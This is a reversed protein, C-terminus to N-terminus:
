GGLDEERPAPRPGHQPTPEVIEWWRFALAPEGGTRAPAGVPTDGQKAPAPKDAPTGTSSNRNEPIAM